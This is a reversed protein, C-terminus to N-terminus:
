RVHHSQCLVPGVRFPCVFPFSLGPCSLCPSAFQSIVGFELFNNRKPGFNENLVNEGM